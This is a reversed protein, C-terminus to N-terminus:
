NDLKNYIFRTFRFYNHKPKSSIQGDKKLIPRFKEIEDESFLNKIYSIEDVTPGINHVFSFPYCTFLRIIRKKKIFIKYIPGIEKLKCSCINSSYKSNNIKIPFSIIDKNKNLFFGYKPIDFYSINKKKLLKESCRCIKELKVFLLEDKTITITISDFTISFFLKEQPKKNRCIKIIVAIIMMDEQNKNSFM